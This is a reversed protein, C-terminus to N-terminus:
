SRPRGKAIPLATLPDEPWSHKPYRIKLERKVEPYTNRWFSALDSTVQVPQYNPGLLHLTLSIKQGWIKPSESMGFLEQLRVELHPRKDLHYHIRIKNKTPVEIKGPCMKQFTARSSDELLSEFFYVLDKKMVNEIKNEGLCALSLAERIKDESWFIKEFKQEREFFQWRQWWFKLEENQELLIAFKQFIVLPLQEELEEPRALRRRPEEIPIEWLSKFEEVYFNKQSEDFSLHTQNQFLGSFHKEILKKPVGTALRVQTDKSFDSELLSLAIFFESKKVCSVADLDVGRGGVMIARSQGATRRRCLRDPYSLLMIEAILEFSLEYSNANPRVWRRLQDAAKLISDVIPNRSKDALIELREILDSEEHHHGLTKIEREQLIAAIDCGLAGASFSESIKLIQGIRPHVPLEALERGKQTIQKDKLAGIKELWVECKNLHELSPREFWSFEKLNTIGWKKLFLVLETLETRLIEAVEFEPMSLEDQTTWLQLCQGPWQRAARGARQKSSAKSIRSISLQEFDTKPHRRLVKALGSDIVTDVGDITVSSEAVNTSLIIKRKSAPRLAQLQMQMSLAGSLNFILFDKKLAWDALAKEVRFIESAGPLFVLIDRGKPNRLIESRIAEEVRKIFHFDTRLLQSQKSKLLTLAFSQGSVCLTPAHDLFASVKELDLTASMVLIKLDPRSLSQIEKLLGLALDIHISREHFEDLVVLGVNKLEPDQIIKRALLAETLFILKTCKSTRNEFRVQYGVEKGLEWNQEEAIRTAAAVAAMRRPELVWVEKETLELLIPPLRTTKGAGPAASLVLNSHSKLLGVIEALKEDIPLSQLKTQNIANM